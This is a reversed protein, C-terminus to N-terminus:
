ISFITNTVPAALPMPSAVDCMNAFEFIHDTNTLDLVTDRSVYEATPYLKYLAQAVGQKPNGTIIM